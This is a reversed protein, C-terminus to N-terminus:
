GHDIGGTLLVRRPGHDDNGRVPVYVLIDGFCAYTLSLLMTEAAAGDAPLVDALRFRIWNANRTLGFGFHGARNPVFRRAFGPAAVDDITLTGGPDVFIDAYPGVIATKGAPAITAPVASAALVFAGAAVALVMLIALLQLSSFLNRQKM